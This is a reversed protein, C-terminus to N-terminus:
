YRFSTFHIVVGEFVNSKSKGFFWEIFDDVSLCDNKAVQQIPIKKDDIWVQPLSDSSDYTMTIKQLGIKSIRKIEDQKSFYPKDNWQRISLYMKGKNILNAKKAWWDYNARITHIKDGLELKERFFTKKGKKSHTAPFVKSLTIIAKKVKNEM